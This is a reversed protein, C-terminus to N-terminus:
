VSFLWLTHFARQQFLPACHQDSIPGVKVFRMVENLASLSYIYFLYNQLVFHYPFLFCLTTLFPPPSPTKSKLSVNFCSKTLFPSTLSLSVIGYQYQLLFGFRVLLYFMDLACDNRNRSLKNQCLILYFYFCSTKYM